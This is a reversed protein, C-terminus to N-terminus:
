KIDIIKGDNISTDYIAFSAVWTRSWVIEWPNLVLCKWVFEKHKLHNHGYFVADFDWSKAMPIALENYHTLFIKRNEIELFEFTKDSHKFNKNILWWLRFVDWNNNWFIAFIPIKSKSLIKATSTSSFDWLFLIKEVNFKKVERFFLTLNKINDHIDSIIAIKM